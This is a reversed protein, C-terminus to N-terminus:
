IGGKLPLTLTLPHQGGFIIIQGNHRRYNGKSGMHYRKSNYGPKKRKM